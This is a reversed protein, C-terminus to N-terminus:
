TSLSPIACSKMCVYPIGHLYAAISYNEFICTRIAFFTKGTLQVYPHSISQCIVILKDDLILCCGVLQCYDVQCVVCEERNLSNGVWCRSDVVNDTLYVCVIIERYVLNGDRGTFNELYLTSREIETSWLGYALVDIGVVLLYLVSLAVVVVENEILFLFALQTECCLDLIRDTAACHLNVGGFWAQLHICAVEQCTDRTLMTGCEWAAASNAELCLLERVCRVMWVEWTAAQFWAVGVCLFSNILKTYLFLVKNYIHLLYEFLTQEMKENSFFCGCKRFFIMNKFLM